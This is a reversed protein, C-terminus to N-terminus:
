RSLFTYVLPLVISPVWGFAIASNCYDRDNCFCYYWRKVPASGDQYPFCTKGQIYSLNTPNVQIQTQYFCDSKYTVYNVGPAMPDIIKVCYQTTQCQNNRNDCTASTSYRLPYDGHWGNCQYCNLAYTDISGFVLLIWIELQM